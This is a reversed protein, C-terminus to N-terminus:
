QRRKKRLEHDLINILKEFNGVNSQARAIKIRASQKEESETLELSKAANVFDAPTSCLYLAKKLEPSYNALPVSLVPRGTALCEYIKAPIVGKMFAADTKYPLIIAGCGALNDILDFRNFPGKIKINNVSKPADSIVTGCLIIEFGSEALAKLVAWDIYQHIAGFYCIKNLDGKQRAISNFLGFDVGHHIQIIKKHKTKHKELLFDSDVLLIDALDLTKKETIDIDKPADPHGEFNTVCDYVTLDPNLRAILELSTHTPLYNIVILPKNLDRKIKGSIRPIFFIRNILRFVVQASPIALPPIVVVNQPIQNRKKRVPSRFFINKIRERIRAVDSPKFSRFGTNEVFFVKAGSAALQSAFAQHRQWLFDWDISSLIVVEAESLNTESKNNEM